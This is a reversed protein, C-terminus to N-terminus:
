AAGGPAVPQSCAPCRPWMEREALGREVLAHLSDRLRQADHDIVARDVLVMGDAAPAAKTVRALALSTTVQHRQARALAVDDGAQRARQADGELDRLQRQLDAAISELTPAEESEGTVAGDRTAPAVAHAAAEEARIRKLVKSVAGGSRNIAHAIEDRGAGRAHLRAIEDREADTIPGTPKAPKETAKM